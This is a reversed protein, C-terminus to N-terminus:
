MCIAGHIHTCIIGPIGTYLLRMKFQNCTSDVPVHTGVYSPLGKILMLRHFDRLFIEYIRDTWGDCWLFESQKFNMEAVRLVAAEVHLM